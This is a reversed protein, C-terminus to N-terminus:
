GEWEARLKRRGHIAMERKRGWKNKAGIQINGIHFRLKIHWRFLTVNVELDNNQSPFNQKSRWYENRRLNEYESKLSFRHNMKEIEFRTKESIPGAANSKAM